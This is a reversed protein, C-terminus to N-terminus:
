SRRRKFTEPLRGFRHDESVPATSCRVSWPVSGRWPSARRPNLPRAANRSSILLATARAICTSRAPRDWASGSPTRGRISQTTPANVASCGGRRDGCRVHDSPNNLQYPQPRVPCRTSGNESTCAFLQSLCRWDSEGGRFATESTAVDGSRQFTCSGYAYSGVILSGVRKRVRATSGM